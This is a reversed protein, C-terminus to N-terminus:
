PIAEDDGLRECSRMYAPGAWNEHRPFGLIEIAILRLHLSRQLPYAFVGVSKHARRISLLRVNEMCDFNRCSVKGCTNKRLRINARGHREDHVPFRTLIGRQRAVTLSSLRRGSHMQMPLGGSGYPM